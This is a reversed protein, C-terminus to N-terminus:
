MQADCAVHFDIRQCGTPIAEGDGLVPFAVFVNSMEQRTADHWLTNGNMADIMICDDYHKPIEIGHKHASTHHRKNAASM